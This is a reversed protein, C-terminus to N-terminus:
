GRKKGGQSASGDKGQAVGWAVGTEKRWSQSYGWKEEGHSSSGDKGEAVVLAVM